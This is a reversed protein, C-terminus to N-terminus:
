RLESAAAKRVRNDAFRIVLYWFVSSWGLFIIWGANEHAWLLADLGEYYGVIGIVTMRFLNGLYAAVLGVALVFAMLRAPLREFVLVFAVFAAVFISFSYLGACYASISLWQETGDQFTIMVLNDSSQAPIGIHDLIWAFPAALMYHVYWGGVDEGASSDVASLVATIAGPAVLFVVIIGLFLLTFAAETKYKPLLLPYAIIMGGFLMALTDIDGIESSSSFFWNFVLVAAIVAAGIAMVIYDSRLLDMIFDMLIIGPPDAKKTPQGAQVDESVESPKKAPGLMLLLFLGLAMSFVGVALGAYSFLLIVSIGEFLLVISL